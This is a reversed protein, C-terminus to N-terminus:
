FIGEPFSSTEEKQLQNIFGLHTSFPYLVLFLYWRYEIFPNQIYQVTLGLKVVISLASAGDLILIKDWDEDIPISHIFLFISLIVLIIQVGQYQELMPLTSIIQQNVFILFFFPIILRTIVNSEFTRKTFIIEGFDIIQERVKLIIKHFPERITKPVILPILTILVLSLIVNLFFINLIEILTM